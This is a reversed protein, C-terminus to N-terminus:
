RSVGVIKDSFLEIIKQSDSGGRLPRARLAGGSTRMYFSHNKQCSRALEEDNWMTVRRRRCGWRGAFRRPRWGQRTGSRPM